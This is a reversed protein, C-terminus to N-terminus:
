HGDGILAEVIDDRVAAALDRPSFDFYGAVDHPVPRLTENRKQLLFFELEPGCNYTLGREAAREVARRLIQRPDGPFPDGNPQYIDCILRATRREPAKWPLVQYTTRIRACFWTARTFVLLVRSLRVTL